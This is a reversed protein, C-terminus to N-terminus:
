IQLFFMLPFQGSIRYLSKTPAFKYGANAKRLSFGAGVTFFKDFAGQRQISLVLRSSSNYYMFMTKDAV